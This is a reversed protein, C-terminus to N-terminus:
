DDREKLFCVRNKRVRPALYLDLCRQFREQIFREYAPVHRLSKYRCHITLIGDMM